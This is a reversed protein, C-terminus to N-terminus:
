EGRYEITVGGDNPRPEVRKVSTNAYLAVPLWPCLTDVTAGDLSWRVEELFAHVEASIPVAAEVSLDNRVIGPRGREDVVYLRMATRDM